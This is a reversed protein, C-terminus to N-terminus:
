RALLLETLKHLHAWPQKPVNADLDLKLGRTHCHGIRNLLKNDYHYAQFACLLLRRYLKKRESSGHQRCSAREEFPATKIECGVAFKPSM